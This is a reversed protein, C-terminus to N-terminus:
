AGARDLWQVFTNRWSDAKGCTYADSSALSSFQPLAFMGSSLPNPLLTWIQAVESAFSPQKEMVPVM